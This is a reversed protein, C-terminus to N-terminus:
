QGYTSSGYSGRAYYGGYGGMGPLRTSKNLTTLVVDCSQLQEMAREVSSRPTREAEVVMIIQGMHTALVGPESTALLPPSDFLIIRDEYRTNLDHLLQVMAQSALVETSRGHPRGAPIVSLNPINTRLLVDPIDIDPETLVDMLGRDCDIGLAHPIAPRAVDADVVLVTRDVELAMSLALNLTCFTKGEGPMSSTIMVLRGNPVRMASNRGFANDLIPRKMIRFEETLGTREDHPVIIGQKRLWAFDVNVKQSHRVPPATEAVTPSTPPEASRTAPTPDTGLASRAEAGTAEGTQGPVEAEDEQQGRHARSKDLAKEIISM